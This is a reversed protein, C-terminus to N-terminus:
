IDFVVIAEWYDNEKKVKIDHYTAAKIDMFKEPAYVGKIKAHLVTENVQLIDLGFYAMQNISGRYILENLWDVMLSELDPAAIEIEEWAGLVIQDEKRKALQEAMAFAMNSFLEALNKGWAKIKLDAPHELLEYKDM